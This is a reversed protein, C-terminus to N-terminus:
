NKSSKQMSGLSMEMNALLSRVLRFGYDIDGFLAHGRAASRVWKAGVMTWGGSRQSRGVDGISAVLPGKYDTRTGKPYNDYRDWCWEWVNGHMDYLNWPNAKLTAVPWTKGNEVASFVAVTSLNPLDTVTGSYYTASNYYPEDVSFPGTTGARAFYEWEGETPLRYGDAFFNCFVVGPRSSNVPSKFSRDRYYCRTLGNQVSLFNAFLIAQYWSVNQVPDNMGSGYQINTPDLPLNQQLTKLDKWMQRTVETEMVAINKTLIHTFQAERHHGPETSPSGQLFGGPGTAPVYRMNGIINDTSYLEGPNLVGSVSGKLKIPEDSSLATTTSNIHQIKNIGNRNKKTQVTLFIASAIFVLSFVIIIKKM